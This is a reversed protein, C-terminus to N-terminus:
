TSLFHAFTIFKEVAVEYTYTYITLSIKRATFTTWPMHQPTPLNKYLFFAMIKRKLIFRNPCSTHTGHRTTIM